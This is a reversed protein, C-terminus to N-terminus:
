QSQKPMYPYIIASRDTLICLENQWSSKNRAVIDQICAPNHIPYFSVSKGRILVGELLGAILRAYEGQLAEQPTLVHRQKDAWDYHGMEEFFFITYQERLSGTGSREPEERLRL